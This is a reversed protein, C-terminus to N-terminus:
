NLTFIAPAAASLQVTTASSSLGNNIVVIGTQTQNLLRWPLQLNIQTSSVFFLPAAIGDVLVSVGGLSTPLPLSAALTTSTAMNVGFISAITNGAVTLGYRAADVVGNASIAPGPTSTIVFPLAPSVGGGPAPNSVTVQATGAAALDAATIAAQLQTESVFTTTRASNNWLVTSTTTFGEGNVTITRASGGPAASSPLLWEPTPAPNAVTLTATADPLVQVDPGSGTGQGTCNVAYTQGLTAGAPLTVLLEGLKTTGAPLPPSISTWTLDIVQYPGSAGTVIQPAPVGSNVQFGLSAVIGPASGNAQIVLELTLSNFTAQSNLTVPMRVLGGPLGGTAAVGPYYSVAPETITVSQGAVTITATQPAFTTSFTASFNVTGIGSGSAQTVTLWPASSVAQWSCNNSNADVSFQGNGGFPSLAVPIANV